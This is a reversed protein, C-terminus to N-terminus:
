QRQFHHPLAHEAIIRNGVSNLSNKRNRRESATSYRKTATIGNTVVTMGPTGPVNVNPDIRRGLVRDADRTREHLESKRRGGNLWSHELLRVLDERDTHRRKPDIQQRGNSSALEVSTIHFANFRRNIANLDRYDAKIVQFCVFPRTASELIQAVEFVERLIRPFRRM